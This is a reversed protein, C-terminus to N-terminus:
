AARKALAGTALAGKARALAAAGIVVTMTDSPASWHGHSFGEGDDGGGGGGNRGNSGGIRGSGGHHHMAHSAIARGNDLGFGCQIASPRRARTKSARAVHYVHTINTFTAVM